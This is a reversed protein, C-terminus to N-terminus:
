RYFLLMQGHTLVEDATHTDRRRGGVHKQRRCFGVFGWFKALVTLITKNKQAYGLASGKWVSIGGM